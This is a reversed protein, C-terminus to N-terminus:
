GPVPARLFEFRTGEVAPATTELRLVVGGVTTPVNVWKRHCCTLSEPVKEKEGNVLIRCILQEPSTCLPESPVAPHMERLNSQKERM